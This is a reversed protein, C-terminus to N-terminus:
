CHPMRQWDPRPLVLLIRQQWIDGKTTDLENVTHQHKQTLADLKIICGQQILREWCRIIRTRESRSFGWIDSSLRLYELERSTVLELLAESDSSWTRYLKEFKQHNQIDKCQKRYEFFSSDKSAVAEFGEEDTESVLQEYHISFDRKLFSAIQGWLGSRM